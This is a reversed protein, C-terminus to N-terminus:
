PQRGGAATGREDGLIAAIAAGIRQEVGADVTSYESSVQCGGRSMVPDEIMSWARESTPEPLRERIIAADDPHLRVRVERAAIPLLKITERVLAIIQDPQTKLERRVVARAISGAVAVLQTEVEIDLEHLPRSLVELVESIKQAKAGLENSMSQHESRVAAIGAERGAAFGTEWAERELQPLDEIRRRSGVVPGNVQPLSWSLVNAGPESM